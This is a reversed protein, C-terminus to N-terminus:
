HNNAGPTDNGDDFRFGCKRGINIKDRDRIDSTDLPFLICVKSRKDYKKCAALGSSMDLAPCNFTIQCCAGCRICAGDRKRLKTETLGPLLHVYIVRRIKSWFSIPKAILGNKALKLLPKLHSIHSM